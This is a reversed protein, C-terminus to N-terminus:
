QMVFDTFYINKFIDRGTASNARMLLEDKLQFKGEPTSISEASKSSILTIIADRIQPVRAEALKKYRKDILELKLTIKLFRGRDSLNVVFPELSFLLPEEEKILDEEKKVEEINASGKNAFFKTYAFFGGGGALVLVLGIIIILKSKGKKPKEEEQQVEKKEEAM